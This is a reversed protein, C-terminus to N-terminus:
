SPTPLADSRGPVMKDAIIERSQVRPRRAAAAAAAAVTSQKRVSRGRAGTLNTMVEHSENLSTMLDCLVGASAYM